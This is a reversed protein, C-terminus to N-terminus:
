AVNEVVPRVRRRSFRYANYAVIFDVGLAAAYRELSSITTEGGLEIRRVGHPTMRMQGAVQSRTKGATERLTTLDM